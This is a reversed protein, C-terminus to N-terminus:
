VIKIGHAPLGNIIGLILKALTFKILFKKWFRREVKDPTHKSWADSNSWSPWFALDIQYHQWARRWSAWGWCHNFKSLTIFSADGHKGNQFNVGTICVIKKNQEYYKLLNECFNFLRLATSLRGRFYNRKRM